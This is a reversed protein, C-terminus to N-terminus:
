NEENGHKCPRDWEPIYPDLSPTTAGTIPSTDNLKYHGDEGLGIHEPEIEHKQVKRELARAEHLVLAMRFHYIIRENNPHPQCNNCYRTRDILMRLIEQTVVGEEETGLEKNVYQIETTNEGDRHSLRYLHGPKIVHM